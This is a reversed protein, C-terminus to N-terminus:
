MFGPLKGHGLGFKDASRHAFDIRGDLDIAFVPSSGIVLLLTLLFRMNLEM